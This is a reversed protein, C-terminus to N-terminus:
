SKIINSYANLMALDVLGAAKVFYGIAAVLDLVHLLQVLSAVCNVLRQEQSGRLEADLM